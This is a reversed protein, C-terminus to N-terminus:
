ENLIKKAIEKKTKREKMAESVIYKYASDESMGKKMLLLKAKKVLVAEEEKEKYYDIKENLDNLLKNQKFVFRILDINLNNIDVSLFRPSSELQFYSTFNNQIYLVFVNSRIIISLLNYDNLTHYDMIILSAKYQNILKIYNFEDIYTNIIHYNFGLERKIRNDIERDNIYLLINDM